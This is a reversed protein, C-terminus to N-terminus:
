DQAVGTGSSVCRRTNYYFSIVQEPWGTLHSKFGRKLPISNYNHTGAMMILPGAAALDVTSVEAPIVLAIHGPKRDVPNRCIALVVFGQNARDQAAEYLSAGRIPQWNAASAAPTALWEYQASALLIQSHAPPRLLYVGLQACAAAAFASCHTATGSTAGPKDAVGTAWNIHTGALWRQEVALSLYFSQLWKGRSDIPRVSQATSEFATLLLLLSVLRM